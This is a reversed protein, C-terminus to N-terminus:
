KFNDTKFIELFRIAFFLVFGVLSLLIDETEVRFVQNNGVYNTLIKVALLVVFFIIFGFAGYRFPVLFYKIVSGYISKM